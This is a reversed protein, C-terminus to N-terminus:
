RSFRARAHRAIRVAITHQPLLHRYRLAVRMAAAVMLWIGAVVLVDALNFAVGGVAFPNAVVRAHALADVLNGLLGGAFLGSALALLRSPLRALLFAFALLGVSLEVWADSRHHGFSPEATMLAMLALDAGALALATFLVIGARARM